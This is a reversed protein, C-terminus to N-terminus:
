ACHAVEHAVVYDILPAPAQMLRWNLRVERAATAAAWRGLASSLM